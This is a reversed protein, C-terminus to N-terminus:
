PKTEDAVNGINSSMAYNSHAYMEKTDNQEEQRLFEEYEKKHKLTNAELKQKM